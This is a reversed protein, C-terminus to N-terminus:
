ESLRGLDCVRHDDARRLHRGSLPGWREWWRERTMDGRPRQRPRNGHVARHVLRTWCDLRTLPFRSRDRPDGPASIELGLTMSPRRGRPVDGEDHRCDDGHLGSRRHHLWLRGRRDGGLRCRDGADARLLGADLAPRRHLGDHLRVSRWAVACSMVYLVASPEPHPEPRVCRCWVACDSM